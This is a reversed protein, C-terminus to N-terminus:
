KVQIGQNLKAIKILNHATKQLEEIMESSETLIFSQKNAEYALLKFASQLAESESINGNNKPLVHTIEYKNNLYIDDNSTLCPIDLIENVSINLLASMKKLIDINPKRHNNEYNALTSIPINLMKAFQKQNINKSLRIKKINAGINM